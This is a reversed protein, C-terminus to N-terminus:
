ESGGMGQMYSLLEKKGSIWVPQGKESRGIANWHQRPLPRLCQFITSFLGVIKESCGSAFMKIKKDLMKWISKVCVISILM